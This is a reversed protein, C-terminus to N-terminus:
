SFANVIERRKLARRTTLVNYKVVFRSRPDFFIVTTSGSASQYGKQDGSFCCFGESIHTFGHKPVIEHAKTNQCDDELMM